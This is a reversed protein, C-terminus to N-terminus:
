RLKDEEVFAKTYKLVFGCKFSTKSMLSVTSKLVVASWRPQVSGSSKKNRRSWTSRRPRPWERQIDLTKQVQSCTPYKQHSIGIIGELLRTDVGGRDCTERNSLSKGTDTTWFGDEKEKREEWPRYEEAAQTKGEKGRREAGDSERM